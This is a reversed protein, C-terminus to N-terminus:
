IKDEIADDRVGYVRDSLPWGDVSSPQNLPADPPLKSLHHHLANAVVDAVFVLADDKGLVVLDGLHRAKLWELPKGAMDTISSRISGQLKKRADRDWGSTVYEKPEGATRARDVMEEFIKAIAKDLQDTMLDVLGIDCDSALADLKLVLGIMCTEDVREASPRRTIAVNSRRQAHADDVLQQVRQYSARAIRLRRADYVIPIKLARISAFIENRADEAVKAWESSGSGFADTIHLSDVNPPRAAKFREFQAEFPTRFRDRDKLPIVIAAILAIQDDTTADLNRLLGKAGAEDVYAEAREHRSGGRAQPVDTM